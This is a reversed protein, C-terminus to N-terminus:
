GPSAGPHCGMFLVMWGRRGMLRVFRVSIFRDRQLVISQLPIEKTEFVSELFHFFRSFAEFFTNQLINIVLMLAM